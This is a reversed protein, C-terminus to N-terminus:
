GAQRDADAGGRAARGAADDQELFRIVSVTRGGVKLTDGTFQGGDPCLRCAEYDLRRRARMAARFERFRAGNWIEAISQEGANGMRNHLFYDGHCPVVDGNWTVFVRQFPSACVYDPDHRILEPAERHQEAIVAVRDVWPEWFGFYEPNREICGSITQVRVLPKVRGERRKLEHLGKVVGKIWAFTIPKRIREYDAGLGDISFSIWDLGADVLARTLEPTMLGGNTLFAVDPIGKAKAYRVMDPLRPNLTPEGRWSLKLSFVGHAACEDVVKCFLGFDMTGGGAFVDSQARTCMPCQLQCSLSAELDVTLPFRPVVGLRPFWYWKFRDWLLRATHGRRLFYRLNDLPKSVVFYNFNIRMM